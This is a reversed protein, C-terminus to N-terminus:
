TPNFRHTKRMHEKVERLPKNQSIFLDLIEDEHKDWDLCVGEDDLAMDPTQHQLATRPARTGSSCSRPCCLFVAALVLQINHWKLAHRAAPLPCSLRAM